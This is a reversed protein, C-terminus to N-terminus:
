RNPKLSKVAKSVASHHYIEIYDVIAYLGIIAGLLELTEEVAVFIGQNLFTERSGASTLLDVIVAGSLFVFGGIVFIFITRRPLLHLMKWIIWASFLLVFPLVIWWANALGTPSADQFVTVHLTQLVREHLASIEDISFMLGIGAILWWIRRAPQNTQLYGAL